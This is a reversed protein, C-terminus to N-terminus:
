IPRLPKQQMNVELVYNNPEHGLNNNHLITAICLFLMIRSKIWMCTTGM